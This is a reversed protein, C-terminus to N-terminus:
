SDYKCTHTNTDAHDPFLSPACLEYTPGPLLEFGESEEVQWRGSGSESSEFSRRNQFHLSNRRGSVITVKRIFSPGPARSQGLAPQSLASKRTLTTRLRAFSGVATSRFAAPRIRAASGCRAPQPHIFGEAPSAQAEGSRRLRARAAGRLREIGGREDGTRDRSAFSGLLPWAATKVAGGCGDRGSSGRLELGPRSGTQAVRWCSRSEGCGGKTRGTAYRVVRLKDIKCTQAADISDQVGIRLM